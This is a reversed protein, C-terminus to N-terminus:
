PQVPGHKRLGPPYLWRGGEPGASFSRVSKYLLEAVEARNTTGSFGMQHGMNSYLMWPTAFGVTEGEQQLPRRMGAQYYICFM